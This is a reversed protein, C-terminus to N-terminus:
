KAFEYLKGLSRFLKEAKLRLVPDLVWCNRMLHVLQPSEQEFAFPILPRRKNDKLQTLIHKKTAFSHVNDNPGKMYDVPGKEFMVYYMINGFAWIDSELGPDQGDIQEPASYLLTYGTKGTKKELVATKSLGFDSLKAVNNEDVLINQPKLDLHCISKAHLYTLGKALQVLLGIKEKMNLRNELVYKYLTKKACYEMVIVLTEQHLTYGFVKIINPHNCARLIRYEQLLAELNSSKGLKEPKIVKMAVKVSRGSHRDIMNNLLINGFGGKGIIECRTLDQESFLDVPLRDAVPIKSLIDTDSVPAICPNLHECAQLALTQSVQSSYQSRPPPPILSFSDPHLPAPLLRFSSSPTHFYLYQCPVERFCIGQDYLSMVWDQAEAKLYCPEVPLKSGSVVEWLFLGKLKEDLGDVFEELDRENGEVYVTPYVESSVTRIYHPSPESPPLILTETFHLTNGMSQIVNMNEVIAARLQLGLSEIEEDGGSSVIFKVWRESSKKAIKVTCNATKTCQFDDRLSSINFSAFLKYQKGRAVSTIEGPFGAFDCENLIKLKSRQGTTEIVECQFGVTELANRLKEVDM